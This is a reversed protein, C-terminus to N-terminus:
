LQGDLEGAGEAGFFYALVHVDLEDAVATVEIGPVFAIGKAACARATAECGATTDHDTLGLM